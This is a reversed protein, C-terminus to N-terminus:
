KKIALEEALKKYKEAKQPESLRGFLDTLLEYCRQLGAKDDAKALFPLAKEGYEAATRFDMTYAIHDGILYLTWGLNQNDGLKEFMSAAERYLMLVEPSRSDKSGIVTAQMLIARAQIDSRSAAKNQEASRKFAALAPDLRGLKQLVEGLNFNYSGARLDDKQEEAMQRATDFEKAAEELLQQNRLAYGLNNHVGAELVPDKIKKSIQLAQMLFAEAKAFERQDSLMIGQLRVQRGKLAERPLAKIGGARDCADVFKQAAELTALAEPIKRRSIQADASDMLSKVAAAAAAPSKLALKVAEAVKGGLILDPMPTADAKGAAQVKEGTKAPKAKTEGAKTQRTQTAGAVVTLALVVAISLFHKKM